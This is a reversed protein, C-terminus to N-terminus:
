IVEDICKRVFDFKDYDNHVQINNWFILDIDISIEGKQKSITTRGMELEIQKFISKTEEATEASLIKLAINHFDSKYKKGIPKTILMTSTREIDFHESLKEIALEINNEANTNSGLMILGINM